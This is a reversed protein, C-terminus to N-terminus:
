PTARLRYFRQSAQSSDPIIYHNPFPLAPVTFLTTWTANSFSASDTSQLEYTRFPETDFHVLIRRADLPEILYFTPPDAQGLMLPFCLVLLWRAFRRRFPSPTRCTTRNTQALGISWCPSQWDLLPVARRKPRNAVPVARAPPETEIVPGLVTSAHPFATQGPVSLQDRQAPGGTDPFRVCTPPNLLAFTGPSRQILQQQHRRRFREVSSPLIVM